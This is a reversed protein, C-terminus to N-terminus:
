KLRFLLINKCLLIKMFHFINRLSYTCGMDVYMYEIKITDSLDTGMEKSIYWVCVCVCVCVYVYMCVCVCVCVYVCVHIYELM